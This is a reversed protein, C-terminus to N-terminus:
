GAHHCLDTIATPAGKNQVTRVGLRQKPVKLYATM